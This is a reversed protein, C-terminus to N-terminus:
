VFGGGVGRFGGCGDGGRYSGGIGAGYRGGKARVTASPWVAMRACNYQLNDRWLGGGDLGPEPSKPLPIPRPVPVPVPGPLPFAYGHGAYAGAGIGAAWCGGTASVEGGYIVLSNGFSDRSGGIGAGYDGGIAVIRGGHFELRGTYEEDIREPLNTQCGIGAGNVGGKAVLMGTQGSQGYIHLSGNHMVEIGPRGATGNVTLTVGDCLIIHAVQDEKEVEITHDITRTESVVYWGENELKYVASDLERCAEPSGHLLQDKCDYYLVTGDSEEARVGTALVVGVALLWGSVALKGM